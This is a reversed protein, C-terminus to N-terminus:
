NSGNLGVEDDSRKTVIDIRVAWDAFDNVLELQVLVDRYRQDDTRVRLTSTTFRMGERAPEWTGELYYVSGDPMRVYCTKLLQFLEQYKRVAVGYDGSSLMKAQWSATTDEVSHYRMVTCNEADSVTVLSAYSDTEGEALLLEGTVYRFNNPLDRLVADIADVFTAVRIRSHLVSDACVASDIRAKPLSDVAPGSQAMCTHAMCTITVMMALTQTM